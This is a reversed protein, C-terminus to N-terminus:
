STGAVDSYDPLNRVQAYGENEKKLVFHTMGNTILLYPADLALNYRVVQDIVAHNITVGPAKCEVILLPRGDKGFVAIDYRKRTRYLDVSGEVVTLGAPFGRDNLLFRIVHQRVWEEPTLAVFKKRLPDFIAQAGDQDRVTFEYAPFNLQGFSM